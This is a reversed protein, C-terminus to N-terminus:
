EDEDEFNSSSSSSSAPNEVGRSTPLVGKVSNKNPTGGEPPRRSRARLVAEVASSWVFKVAKRFSLELHARAAV